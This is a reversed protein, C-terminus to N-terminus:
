KVATARRRSTIVSVLILGNCSDDCGGVVELGLSGGWRSLDDLFLQGFEVGQDLDELWLVDLVEFLFDLLCTVTLRGLISEDLFDLADTLLTLALEGLKSLDGRYM